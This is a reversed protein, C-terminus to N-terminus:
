EKSDDRFPYDLTEDPVILLEPPLNMLGNLISLAFVKREQISYSEAKLM